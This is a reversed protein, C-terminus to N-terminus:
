DPRTHKSCPPGDVEGALTPAPAISPSPLQFSCGLWWYERSRYKLSSSPKTSIDLCIKVSANGRLSVHMRRTDIEFCLSTHSAFHISSLACLSPSESASRCPCQMAAVTIVALWPASHYPCLICCKCLDPYIHIHPDLTYIAM